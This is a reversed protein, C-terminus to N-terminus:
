GLDNDWSKLIHGMVKWPLPGMRKLQSFIECLYFSSRATLPGCDCIGVSFKKVGLVGFDWGQLMVGAVSHFNQEIHKRDKIKLVGVFNPIIFFTLLCHKNSVGQM